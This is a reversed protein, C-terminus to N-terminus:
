QVMSLTVQLLQSDTTVIKANASYIQQAEILGTFENAIDVNSSELSSSSLTGAGAIGPTNYRATGADITAEYAGGSVRQLQDQAYFQVIPIQAISRTTGNSYNISVFGDKSISLSNFSGQPLGNQSFNNVTVTSSTNAFQTLGTSSGYADGFNLDITQGTTFGPFTASLTVDPTGSSVSYPSPASASSSYAGIAEVTGATGLAGDNFTFPISTTYTADPVTVQLDWQNATSTKTWTYNIDHTTGESDYALVTSTSSVYGSTANSPLNANYSVLSTKVPNDLTASIQIPSTTSTNVVGTSANVSYGNLYFGSSNVLYGSRNLTFDGQRTYYTAGTFTTAGTTGVTATGVAFYGQGSIALSTSTNSSTISGQVDNQYSPLAQVGGPNNVTASSSNVLEEFATGVAKYGTTQANSLNDSINGIATSQADLGSIATTLAAFLSGM